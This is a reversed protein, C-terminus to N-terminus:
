QIRCCLMYGKTPVLRTGGYSCQGGVNDGCVGESGWGGPNFGIIWEGSACSHWYYEGDDWRWTCLGYLTGSIRVDGAVDLKYSPVMGIGVNGSSDLTFVITGGLSNRFYLNKSSQYDIYTNGDVWGMIRFQETAGNKLVFDTRNNAPASLTIGPYDSIQQYVNFKGNPETTGIGVNGGDRALYTNNTTLLSVYGGYPAPYYTTINLTESETTDETSLIYVLTVMLVCFCKKLFYSIDKM